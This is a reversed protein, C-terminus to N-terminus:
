NARYENPMIYYKGEVASGDKPFKEFEYTKVGLGEAKLLDQATELLHEYRLQSQRPLTNFVVRFMELENLDCSGLIEMKQLMCDLKMVTYSQKENYLKIKM